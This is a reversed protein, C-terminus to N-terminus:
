IKGLPRLFQTLYALEEQFEEESSCTLAVEGRILSLLKGRAIWLKNRDQRRGALHGQVVEFYSASQERLRAMARETLELMWERDFDPDRDVVELDPVPLDQRKRLRDQIVHTVVSLLFSRFRGRSSEARSLVKGKFLRVFVDQCVDEADTSSFGRGGIYRLM